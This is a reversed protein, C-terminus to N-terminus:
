GAMTMRQLMVAVPVHPMARLQFQTSTMGSLESYLGAVFEAAQSQISSRDKFAALASASSGNLNRIDPCEL